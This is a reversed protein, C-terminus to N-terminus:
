ADQDPRDSPGLPCRTRERSAKAEAVLSGLDGVVTVWRDLPLGAILRGRQSAAAAVYRWLPSRVSETDVRRLTVSVGGALTCKTRERIPCRRGATIGAPRSLLRAAVTLGESFPFIYRRRQQYPLSEEGSCPTGGNRTALFRCRKRPASLPYPHLTSPASRSPEGM